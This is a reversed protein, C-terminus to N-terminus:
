FDIFQHRLHDKGKPYFLIVPVKSYKKREEEEMKEVQESLEKNTNTRVDYMGIMLDDVNKVHEGLAKYHPMVKDVEENDSIWFFIM